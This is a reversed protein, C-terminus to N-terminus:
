IFRVARKRWLWCNDVYSVDDLSCKEYRDKMNLNLCSRVKGISLVM